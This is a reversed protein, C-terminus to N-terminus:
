DTTVSVWDEPQVSDVLKSHIYHVVTHRPTEVGSMNNPCESLKDMQKDSSHSFRSYNHVLAM